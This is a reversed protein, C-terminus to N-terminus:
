GDIKLLLGFLFSLVVYLETNRFAIACPLLDYIGRRAKEEEEEKESLCESSGFTEDKCM